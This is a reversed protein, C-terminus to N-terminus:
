RCMGMMRAQVYSWQVVDDRWKECDRAIKEAEAWVLGLEKLDTIMIVRGPPRQGEEASSAKLSGSSLLRLSPTM